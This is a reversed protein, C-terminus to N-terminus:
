ALSNASPVQFRRTFGVFNKDDFDISDIRKQNGLSCFRNMFSARADACTNECM